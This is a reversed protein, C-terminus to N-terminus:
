SCSTNSPSATCRSGENPSLLSTKWFMSGRRKDEMWGLFVYDKSKQPDKQQLTNNAIKRDQNEMQYFLQLSKSAVLNPSLPYNGKCSHM